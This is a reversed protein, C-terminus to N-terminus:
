RAHFVLYTAPPDPGFVFPLPGWLDSYYGAGRKSNLISMWRSTPVQRTSEPTVLNEPLAFLYSNDVPLIVADGRSFQLHQEELPKAGLPEIYYQFGWHGEFWVTRGTESLERYLLRASDRASIAVDYDAQTAAVAVGLSLAIPVAMCRLVRRGDGLRAELRRAVLCAVAPLMPLINRGSVTWNVACAFLLVGGIWLCLLVSDPSRRRLLEEYMLALVGLGGTAFLALQGLYVWKVGSMDALAFDGVRKSIVLTLGLLLGAGLGVLLGRKGWLWPAAFLVVIICGGIFTLGTVFKVALGGGVRLNVAYHVANLVLGRGYLRQTWFQYLGLVLVPLGLWPLWQRVRRRRLLAYVLLLPELCFGFYKTLSALVVLLAAGFLRAQSQRELGEMWLWVAWVWFAVMMTDCMVSSSSLLFVPSCVATLGASLPQQCLRRALFWTGLILAVAPVLMAAHLAWESWGLLSGAGALYYSALPPNQTMAAMSARGGEWNVTFGYFDLPKTVIHRACWVFLPDDVHFPKGLFLALSGLTILVLFWLSRANGGLGKLGPEAVDKTGESSPPSVPGTSNMMTPALNINAPPILVLIIRIGSM